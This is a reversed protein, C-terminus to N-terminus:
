GGTGMHQAATRLTIRATRGRGREVFILSAAELAHLARAKSDRSVGFQELLGKPLTVSDSRTLAARHHIALYVSQIKNQLLASAVCADSWAWFVPYTRRHLMMLERAEAPTIGAKHAMTEPGIGYNMGLVVAKCRDRVLKHTATTADEPVLRAQKAFSLYPDGNRYAEMLLEDGSLGAAIGIEQSSFDIYALGYGEPPKILGRTWKAPGFAFRSASPQNRGTLSRFPSLMCRSRGDGAIELKSLPMRSLTRRLERLPGLEPWLRVQEKFTDDKLDLAGSPLRPWAPIGLEGLLRGFRSAKFTQGDYVRYHRDVLKVLRSKIRDWELVFLKQMTTDIPVGAHEMRAVAKMYRGRLIARDWDIDGAIAPILAMLGDVDSECYDLIEEREASSWSDQELILKYMAQKRAPEIHPLGRLALAGLLDNKASLRCGNTLARNEVYADLVNDPFPLDLESFCRLEASALYSVFLADAGTDIPLRRFGLLEDRWWRRTEGTRLEKAVMCLTFIKGDTNQYEADVCWIPRFPIAALLGGDM